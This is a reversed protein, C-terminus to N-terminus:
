LQLAKILIAITVEDLQYGKSTNLNFVFNSTWFLMQDIGVKADNIKNQVIEEPDKAEQEVDPVLRQLQVDADYEDAEVSRGADEDEEVRDDEAPSDLVGGLFKELPSGRKGGLWGLGGLCRTCGQSYSALQAKFQTKMITKSAQFRLSGVIGM